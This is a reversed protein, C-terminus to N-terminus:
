RRRCGRLSQRLMLMRFTCGEKERGRAKVPRRPPRWHQQGRPTLCAAQLCRVNTFESGKQRSKKLVCITMFKHNNTTRFSFGALHPWLQPVYEKDKRESILCGTDMSDVIDRYVCWLLHELRKLVVSTRLRTKLRRFAFM